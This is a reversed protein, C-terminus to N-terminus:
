FEMYQVAESLVSGLDEFLRERVKTFSHTNHSRTVSVSLQRTGLEMFLGRHSVERDDDNM